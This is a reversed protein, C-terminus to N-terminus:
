WEYHVANLPASRTLSDATNLRGPLVTRRPEAPDNHSGRRHSASLAFLLAACIALRVGCTVLIYAVNGDLAVLPLGAFAAVGASVPGVITFARDFLGYLVGLILMGVMVGAIGFNLYLDGPETASQSSQDQTPNESVFVQDIYRGLSLQRYEPALGLFQKAGPLVSLAPEWLSRGDQYPVTSPVAAAIVLYYDAGKLRYLVGNVVNGVVGIGQYNAPTGHALDYSVLGLQLATIPNQTPQGALVADREGQIVGFAIATAGAVVVIYRVRVRDGAGIRGLVWAVVPLLLLSKFGNTYGFAVAVLVLLLSVPLRRTSNRELYSMGAIAFLFLDGVNSAIGSVANFLFLGATIVIGSIGVAFFQRHTIRVTDVSARFPLARNTLVQGILFLVFAACLVECALILQQPSATRVPPFDYLSQGGFIIALLRLPFYIIWLGAFISSISLARERVRIIQYATLTQIVFSAVAVEQVSLIGASGALFLAAVLLALLWPAIRM